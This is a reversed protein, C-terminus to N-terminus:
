GDTLGLEVHEGPHRSIDIRFDIQARQRVPEGLRVDILEEVTRLGPLSGVEEFMEIQRAM